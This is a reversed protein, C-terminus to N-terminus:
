LRAAIQRYLNAGTTKGFEKVLEKKWEDKDNPDNQKECLNIIKEKYREDIHLNIYQLLNQKKRILSSIKKPQSPATNMKEVAEISPRRKFHINKDVFMAQLNEGMVDFGHDNTIINININKAREGSIIQAVKTVIVFDCANKSAQDLVTCFFSVKAKTNLTVHPIEVFPPTMNKSYIVVLKDEEGLKEVGDLGHYQVNEYDIIYINKM